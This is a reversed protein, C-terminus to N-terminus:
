PLTFRLSMFRHPASGLPVADRAQFVAPTNLTIVANTSSWEPPTLSGTIPADIVVDTANSDRNLTVSLYQANSVTVFGLARFVL